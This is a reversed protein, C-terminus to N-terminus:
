QNLIEEIETTLNNKSIKDEYYELIALIIGQIIMSESENWFYDENNKFILM